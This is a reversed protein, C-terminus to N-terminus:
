QRFGWLQGVFDFANIYTSNLLAKEIDNPFFRVGQLESNLYVEMSADKLYQIESINGKTVKLNLLGNFYTSHFIFEPSYAYTWDWTRYREAAINGCREIELGSLPVETIDNNQSILFQKLKEKFEEIDINQNIFSSINAVKGRNSKIAKDTFRVIDTRICENLAYVDSKYLLTGHHLVRKRYVHEANGSIKLNNILLENKSGQIANLGLTSLFGIIPRLYKEFDILKGDEGNFIFCFNLNGLDHFVTGGGSLRRVVDINSDIVYPLNIEALTNQHKGVIVSPTNIYLFIVDDTTEKLLYEEAAINFFPDHILSQILRM